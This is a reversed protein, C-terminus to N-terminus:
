IHILSLIQFFRARGSGGAFNVNPVVNVLDEMHQAARKDIEEEGLVSVSQPTEFESKNRFDATVIMEDMEAFAIGGFALLPIAGLLKLHATSKFLHNQM